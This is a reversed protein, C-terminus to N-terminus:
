KLCVNVLCNSHAFCLFLHCISEAKLSRLRNLSIFCACVVTVNATPARELFLPQSLDAKHESLPLVLEDQSNEDDRFAEIGNQGLLSETVLRSASM